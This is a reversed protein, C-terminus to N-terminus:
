RGRELKRVAKKLLASVRHKALYVQTTTVRLMTAVEKVTWSQLVYLDFLQFQKASVQGKVQELASSMLNQEWEATWIADLNLSEPDPVRDITATGTSDDGPSSSMSQPARKRLQWIIRQRTILMLWSKFSCISPDYKFEKIHKVVAIITDQVADQAEPETLGAKRSVGYILKWYTDFFDQWSKQDDWDKLRALLSHRTPVLEELDPAPM